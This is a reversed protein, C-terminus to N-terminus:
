CYSGREDKDNPLFLLAARKSRKATECQKNCGADLRKSGTEIQDPGKRGDRKARGLGSQAQFLRGDLGSRRAKSPPLASLHGVNFQSPKGNRIAAFGSQHMSCERCRLGLTVPQIHLQGCYRSVIRICFGFEHVQRLLAANSTLPQGLKHVCNVIVSPSFAM